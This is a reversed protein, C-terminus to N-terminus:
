WQLLICVAILLPLGTTVPCNQLQSVFKTVTRIANQTREFTVVNGYQQTTVRIDLLNTNTILLVPSPRGSVFVARNWLLQHEPNNKWEAQRWTPILPVSFNSMVM